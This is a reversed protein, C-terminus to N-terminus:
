PWTQWLGTSFRHTVCGRFQAPQLSVPPSLRDGRRALVRGSSKRCRYVSRVLWGIESSM